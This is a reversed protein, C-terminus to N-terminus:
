YVEILSLSIKTQHVNLGVTPWFLCRYTPCVKLSVMLKSLFIRFIMNTCPFSFSSKSFVVKRGSFSLSYFSVMM